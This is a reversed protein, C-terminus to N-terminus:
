PQIIEIGHDPAVARVREIDAPMVAAGRPEDRGKSRGAM